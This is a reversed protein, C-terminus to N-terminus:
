ARTVFHTSIRSARLTTAEVDRVLFCFKTGESFTGFGCTGASRVMGRVEVDVRVSRLSNPSGCSLPIKLRCGSNTGM